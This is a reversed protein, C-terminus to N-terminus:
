HLPASDPPPAAIRHTGREPREISPQDISPQDFGPPDIAPQDIVPSEIPDTVPTDDLGTPEYLGPVRPRIAAAGSIGLLRGFYDSM